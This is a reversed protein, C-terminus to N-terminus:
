IHILSLDQVSRIKKRLYSIKILIEELKIQASLKGLMTYKPEMTDMDFNNELDYEVMRKEEKIGAIRADIEERSLYYELYDQEDTSSNHLALCTGVKLDVSNIISKKCINFAPLRSKADDEQTTGQADLMEKKLSKHLINIDKDAYKRQNM